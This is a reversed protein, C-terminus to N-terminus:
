FNSKIDKDYKKLDPLWAAYNEAPNYQWEEPIGDKVFKMFDKGKSVKIGQGKIEDLTHATIYCGCMWGNPPNIIKWIPDDFRFVKNDFPKHEKRYTPREIQHYKWYPRSTTNQMFFNYRGTNYAVNANVQYITKLRNPSGLQVMKDPDLGPRPKYGPVDKAKVKGWWGLRKLTPELERYFQEYTIGSKFIKDVENKISQLIDLKMVKAVTFSRTHADQWTDKWNWSFRYGKGEYWRVIEEPPLTLLYRIQANNLNPM